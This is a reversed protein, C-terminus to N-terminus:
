VSAGHNHGAEEGSVKKPDIHRDQVTLQTVEHDRQLSTCVATLHNDCAWTMVADGHRMVVWHPNDDGCVECCYARSM